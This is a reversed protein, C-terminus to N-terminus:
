TFGSVPTFTVNGDDDVEFTGQDPIELTKEIEPTDPNLDISDLDIPTDNDAINLTVPTDIVTTASDDDLIGLETVDISINASNSVAGSSDQVTYSIPTTQGTFGEVPTFTLNGENDVTYTGEGPQTFTTDQEPTNPNLDVTTTDITTEPDSDDDTINFTVPQGAVTTSSNDTAVPPLNVVEVTINANNSTNGNNDNVTYPITVVGIFGNTPTFTLNGNEDVEFTGQDPLELTTQNGPTDPDLDITSPDVEGELDIDNNTINFTVPQNIFSNAFDDTAIPPSDIVEVIINASNTINGATDEVTYPITVVGIFGDTPTFTVIGEQDVAFTGQDVTLITEELETTSPDLDITGPEIDEGAEAIDNDTINFSVPTNIVTSANDDSAAPRIETVTVAIEATNSLDGNNDAVTYTIPTVEGLFDAVPTFTINGNDDIEFTGQAQQTFTTQRGETNPDLDVTTLDLTGDSDTDNESINFTVPINVGTNANDNTAVPPTNIVAITINASNSLEGDNDNVTYPITAEGVFDPEPTFTVNGNDDIEFTGQEPIVRTKQEGPTDPDLDITSPDINGDIDNDNDTINITVPQNKLTTGNDNNAIPPQNPPLSGVVDISINAPPLSNGNPDNAVYPINVQGTFGSVPTFTVNGDDDVEFTGQDPIELTKEIEPTDPNLDISDLDIPTDNDAINLTVPTDIVTTASDDDLIGLETVDISINASNSVAGSSDQVTYSIPTTQGTFGEVPTFTLNGENDVTYTGEGPQTFTTDQEPTNPNLDVTTTDITTEPDSDDDTINFTVPQGAVTTSSNDTAVPPLNVVEVTINANNSTNGNNDNVTYPITVVGIFGNTPTFTLNGNEDVEFTGQDPLELTTQNGPTDPDLDITSPDVEGELDIDNNTINFTVPQNIFSNAFDDTAIPPSDIVEVIINASNTINGATDEVTYPITVVGIFGDTPTFTVIGEQDVAFTGQDVTLITEELETTSPDLDITGPEIDEGAEAIDNDTINFSVPTNIVTSANDDSAAPRIETVTVAIEATNSLDGNNDAVTYTIPTVEGLFDAVPTFTINGNDDIEFTGQAQQTFTTQRGETNPDLDVTTLDLTGDSDTDNESINFTVPINVGTNANDNTAVPPTNIVAITINASNSLEGDNDNVTYPITAEGVFDPEPTFTVNGNDDIEFTGQEPIVRTKQEGPTDPDLDITSPDINGDIDNDNDTINITVPQNKLTTGNDNNAVPPQNSIIAIDTSGAVTATGDSVSYTFDGPDDIGNYDAPADYQLTTLQAPT